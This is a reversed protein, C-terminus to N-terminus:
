GFCVSRITSSQGTLLGFAMNITLSYTHGVTVRKSSFLGTKVKERIAEARLNGYFLTNGGRLRVRGWFIPVPAGEDNRPFRFDGLQGPKANEINPKPALLATAIFSIAFLALTLWFPM